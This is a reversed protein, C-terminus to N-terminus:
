VSTKRIKRTLTQFKTWFLSSKIWRKNYSEQGHFSTQGCKTMLIITQSVRKRDLIQSKLIELPLRLFQPVTLAKMPTIQIRYFSYPIVLTVKAIHHSTTWVKPKCGLWLRMRKTMYEIVEFDNSQQLLSQKVVSVSLNLLAVFVSLLILLVILNFFFFMIPALIRHEEVWGYFHFQGLITSITTRM